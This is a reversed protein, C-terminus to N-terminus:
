SSATPTQDSSTPRARRAWRAQGARPQWERRRSLITGGHDRILSVVADALTSPFRGALVFADLPRDYRTTGLPRVSVDAAPVGVFALIAVRAAVAAALSAFSAGIVDM